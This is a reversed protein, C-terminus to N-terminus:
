FLFSFLWVKSHKPETTDLYIGVRMDGTFSLSPMFDGVLVNKKDVLDMDFLHSFSEVDLVAVVNPNVGLFFPFTPPVNTRFVTSKYKEIRKQFFTEPGQFWFYNLRDSLPGLVPWGYSGPVPRLPLNKPSPSPPAVAPISPPSSSSMITSLSLTTTLMTTLNKGLSLDKIILRPKM